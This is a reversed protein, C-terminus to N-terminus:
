KKAVKNKIKSKTKSKGRPVVKSKENNAIIDSKVMTKLLTFSWIVIAISLIATLIEALYINNIVKMSYLTAPISAVIQSLMSMLIYKRKNNKIGYFIILSLSIQLFLMFIREFGIMAWNTWSTGAYYNIIYNIQESSVNASQLSEELKNSNILIAYTLSNFSVISGIFISEFGGFGIGFSLSDIVSLKRKKYQKFFLFRACFQLISALLATFISYVILNNNLFTSTTKNINLLYKVIPGEVVQTAIFYALMGFFFIKISSNFKRQLYLILIIPLVLSLLLSIAMSAISFNSVM